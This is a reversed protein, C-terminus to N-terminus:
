QLQEGCVIRRKGGVRDRRGVEWSLECAIEGGPIVASDSAMSGGTMHSSGSFSLGGAGSRGSAVPPPSLAAEDLAVGARADLFVGGRHRREGQMGAAQEDIVVM